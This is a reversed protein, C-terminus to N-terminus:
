QHTPPPDRKQHLCANKLIVAFEPVSLIGEALAKVPDELAMQKAPDIQSGNQKLFSAAAMSGTRKNGDVFAHNRVIRSCLLAALYFIDSQGEYEYAHRTAAVASELLGWNLSRAVPNEGYIEIAPHLKCM